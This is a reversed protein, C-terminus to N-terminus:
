IYLNGCHTGHFSMNRQPQVDNGASILLQSTCFKIQFALLKINPQSIEQKDSVRIQVSHEYFSAM